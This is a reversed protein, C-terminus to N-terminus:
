IEIIVGHNILSYNLLNTTAANIFTTNIDTPKFVGSNISSGENHIHGFIHYKINRKKIAKLLSNDGCSINDANLDLIGKPPGHTLLLDINNPLNEWVRNITDRSKNFAWGIVFTPTYPSGWIVLGNIIVESNELYIINKFESSMKNLGFSNRELSIDHNGAILVKFPIPLNNYWILFSACEQFNLEPDKFCSIDGTCVVMDVNEPVILEDHRNHTDSICWIRM